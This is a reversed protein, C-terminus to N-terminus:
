NCRCGLRHCFFNVCIERVGLRDSIAGSVKALSFSSDVVVVVTDVGCDFGWSGEVSAAKDRLYGGSIASM